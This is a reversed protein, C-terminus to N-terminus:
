RRAAIRGALAQCGAAHQEAGATNGADLMPLVAALPNVLALLLAAGVKGTLPNRQLTVAPASIPGSVRLPTRLALPSFDRPAVVVRLDMTEAALSLTGDMWLVSDSADVVLTRPRLVGAQAVLDAVACPVPLADDGKLM